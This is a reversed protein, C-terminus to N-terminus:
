ETLNMTPRAKWKDLYLQRYKAEDLSSATIDTEPSCSLSVTTLTLWETAQVLGSNDQYIDGSAKRTQNDIFCRGDCDNRVSRRHGCDYERSSFWTLPESKQFSPPQFVDVLSIAVHSGERRLKCPPSIATERIM